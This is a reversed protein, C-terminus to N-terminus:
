VCVLKQSRFSFSSSWIISKPLLQNFTFSHTSHSNFTKFQSRIFNDCPKRNLTSTNVNTNQVYSSTLQEKIEYVVNCSNNSPFVVTLKTVRGFPEQTGLTYSCSNLFMTKIYDQYDSQQESQHFKITRGHHLSKEIFIVRLQM